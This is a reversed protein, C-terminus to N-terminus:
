KLEALRAAALKAWSTDRHKDVVERYAKRADDKAGLGEQCKGSEFTAAAVWEDYAGYIAFVRLYAVLAQKFEDQAQHVQGIYFQARAAVEGRTLATVQDFSKLAEAHQQLDFQAKGLLFFAEPATAHDGYDRTMAELTKVAEAPKGLVILCDGLGVAADPRYQFKAFKANDLLARYREVAVAAQGAKAYSQGAQFLADPLLDSNPFQDKVRDFSAAAEPYKEALWWCWGIRYHAKDALRTDKGAALVKDYLARAEDLRATRKDAPVDAATAETYSAEALHFCADSALPDAPFKDALARFAQLAEPAKGAEQWSWAQEYYLRPLDNTGPYREVADRFAAGADAWQKQEQLCYGLSVAAARGADQKAADKILARLVETADPWRKLSMLCRAQRYRAQPALESAPFDRVVGEFREAAKQWQNQDARCLGLGFAAFPALPGKPQAALVAEYHTAARDYQKMEYCTEALQYRAQAALESQPYAKLFREYADAAQAKKNRQAYATALRLLADDGYRHEGPSKGYAELAAAAEDPKGTEALCVGKVYLSEGAIAEGADPARMVALEKLAEDFKGGHRAVWALRFHARAVDEKSADKRELLERYRQAAAEYAGKLFRNEGSLFVVQPALANTAFATLFEACAADADEYRDARHLAVCAAYQARPAQEASAQERAYQRFDQAAEARKDQALRADGRGLRADGARSSGAHKELLVTFAAEAEAARNQKLMSMGLWYGAEETGAANGEVLPKLGAEAAAFDGAEFLFMGAYLAAQGAKDSAPFRKAMDAFSASAERVQGAKYQALGLEFAAGEAFTNTGAAVEGYAAAAEAYAKEQYRAQALRFQAEERLASQPYLRLFRELSQRAEAYREQDFQAIGLYFASREVLSLFADQAKIGAEDLKKFLAQTAPVTEPKKDGSTYTGLFTNLLDEAPKFQELSIQCAAQRAAAWDALYHTGFRQRVDGFRKEAEAFQNLAVRCQALQFLVEAMQPFEPTAARLAEYAEAAEKFQDQYFLAQAQGFRAETAKEHNPYTQLFTGYADAALPYKGQNYLWAAFNYDDISKDHAPTQALTAGAAMLGLAVLGAVMRLTMRKM